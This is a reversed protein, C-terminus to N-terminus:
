GPGGVAGKGPADRLAAWVREPTAPLDIPGAGASALADNLAAMVAAMAGVNGAEGVGKVGLPNTETPVAHNALRLDRLPMMDDARLMRYDMFSANVVQGDADHAIREGLVQSIGNAIGGQMQGMVLDPNFVPGIDEAATYSLLEFAGTEPDIEVEASHTGNPFNAQEPRFVADIVWGESGGLREAVEFLGLSVNRGPASFLADAFEVEAEPLDFAEAVAARGRAVIEAMALHLAAGSGSIGSSGGNGRGDELLDTDGQRHEIQAIDCGLRASLMRALATEHGQGVSMVGPALVIRGEPHITVRVRDDRPRPHPGAAIEICNILGFGHLRGRARAEARRAARAGHASLGLGREFVAPFDGCDYTFTLGTEWPMQAPTLLNRRRLDAPDCGIRRAAEDLALEIAMTAEPRGHGRFAAIPARPSLRGTIRVAIAGIDYVGAFGGINNALGMARVSPYAGADVTFDGWLGVIRQNEDIGLRVDAASGRGQHDGIFAETRGSVWAVPRGLGRAALAVAAEERTLTGKLGFSGGVDGATVRVADLGCGFLQALVKRVAFPNQTSLCMHFRGDEGAPLAWCGRPELPVAHLRPSTISLSVQCPAADIAEQVRAADGFARLFAIGDGDQGTDAEIQPALAEAGDRAAEASEALVMAVPEGLHRVFRGSLIPQDILVPEAGDDRALREAPFAAAGWGALDDETVVAIVGPVARAAAIDLATVAGRAVDARAFAVWLAGQPVTDALYRGAGTLLRHDELRGAMSEAQIETM